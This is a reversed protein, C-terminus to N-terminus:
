KGRKETKKSYDMDQLTHKENEMIKLIRAMSWTRCHSNKMKCTRSHKKGYEQDYLTETENEVKKLKRAM